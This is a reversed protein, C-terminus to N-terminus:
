GSYSPRLGGPAADDGQRDLVPHRDGGEGGREAIIVPQAAGAPWGIQQLPQAVIEAGVGVAPEVRRAREVGAPALVALFDREPLCPRPAGPYGLHAVIQTRGSIM